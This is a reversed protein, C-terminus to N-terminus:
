RHGDAHPAQLGRETGPLADAGCELCHGSLTLVQSAHSGYRYVIVGECGLEQALTFVRRVDAAMLADSRAVRWFLADPTEVAHRGADNLLYRRELVLRADPSLATASPSARM